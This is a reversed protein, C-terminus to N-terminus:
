LSLLLSYVSIKHLREVSVFKIVMCHYDYDYKSFHQPNMEIVSQAQERYLTELNPSILLFSSYLSLLLIVNKHKYCLAIEIM